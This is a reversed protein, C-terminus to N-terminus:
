HSLNKIFLSTLKERLNQDFYANIYASGENSAKILGDQIYPSIAKNIHNSTIARIDKKSPNNQSSTVISVIGLLDNSTNALLGGSSGKQALASETTEFADQRDHNLRYYSALHLTEKQRTLISNINKILIDAPYAVLTIQSNQSVSEFSIPMPTAQIPETTVIKLFAYDAEGTQETGGTNIYSANLYSWEPSIFVTKVKYIYEAQKGTRAICVVSTDKDSVLPYQAVHANTLVTGDKNILVGSGTITKRLKGMKQSCFINVASDEPNRIKPKFNSLTETIPNPKNYLSPTTEFLKEQTLQDTNQPLKKIQYTPLKELPVIKFVPASLYLLPASPAKFVNLAEKAKKIAYSSAAYTQKDTPTNPNIRPTKQALVVATCLILVSVTAKNSIHM